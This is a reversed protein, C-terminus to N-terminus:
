FCVLVKSKRHKTCGVQTGKLLQITCSSMFLLIFKKFTPIFIISILLYIGIQDGASYKGKVVDLCYDNLATRITGTSEDLYWHQHQSDKVDGKLEALVVEANEDFSGNKVSM